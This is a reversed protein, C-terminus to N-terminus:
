EVLSLKITVNEGNDRSSVVEIDLRQDYHKSAGKILGIAFHSMARKSTYILILESREPNVESDFNPLEADPYLKLVEPHIYNDISELFYFLDNKQVFQPYGKAVVSFFHEGYIDLLDPVSINKTKSLVAVMQFMEKHDYTGISTYAGDTALECASIVEEVTELGFKNEVLELFETFVIGKM